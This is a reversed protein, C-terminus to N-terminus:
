VKKLYEIMDDSEYMSVTHETDVLFPVQMKGGKDILEDRYEANVISREEYAIGQEHMFAEVKKCYPCAPSTYLIYM